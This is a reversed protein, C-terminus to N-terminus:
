TQRPVTAEGALRVPEALELQGDCPARTLPAAPDADRQRRVPTASHQARQERADPFTGAVLPQDAEPNAANRNRRLLRKARGAERRNQGEGALQDDAIAPQLDPRSISGVELERFGGMM